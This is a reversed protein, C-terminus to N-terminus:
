NRSIILHRAMKLMRVTGLASLLGSLAPFFQFLSQYKETNIQFTKGRGYMGETYPYNSDILQTNNKRGQIDLPYYNIRVKCEVVYRLSVSFAPSELCVECFFCPIFKRDNELGKSECM